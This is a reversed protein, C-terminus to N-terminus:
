KYKKNYRKVAETDEEPFSPEPSNQIGIICELILEKDWNEQKACNTRQQRLLEKVQLESYYKM